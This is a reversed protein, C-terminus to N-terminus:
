DILGTTKLLRQIMAAAEARTMKAQPKLLQGNGGETIGESILLAVAEKAWNSVKNGDGYGSLVANMQETNMSAEPRILRYARAIMAMGQERTIYAEGHFAGDDYGLVIGSESAITVAAHYWTSSPVDRFANQEVDQRMLGLGKVIFVAFESRNIDRNPTFTNNGTGEIVLRAGIDNASAKAWHNLVDDYNKPNWIVSYTGSGRLDNIRAFYRNNIKTVVTPVHFVSGDPNVIVGTTIRSPDVGEPLAIYKAAYSNLKGAKITQGGHTFSLDLDVPHVLLEYGNKAAVERALQNLENSARKINVNVAIDSLSANGFQGAIRNLNLQGAPLPYIALLNEIELSSGSDKLEKLQQVTLGQVTLDGNNPVSISLKQGKGGALVGSLKGADVTVTTQTRDGTQTVTGTAFPVQQGNVTTVLDLPKSVQGTGTSPSTTVTGGSSSGGSGGNDSGSSYARYVTVKYEKSVNNEDTVLIYIDNSGPNLVGSFEGSTVAQPKGNAGVRIEIKANPNQATPKFQIQYVSNTVSMTYSATDPNFEPYLSGTSPVLSGLKNNAAPSDEHTIEITYENILNGATDEVKVQVLNRQGVNLPLKSWQEAPYETGNVYVKVQTGNPYEVTPNLGIGYVDNTVTATYHKYQNPNFEPSVKIDKTGDETLGVLEWDKLEGGIKVLNKEANDLATKVQDVQEQTANSDAFVERAKKLVDQMAQWSETTYDEAKLNGNELKGDMDSIKAELASKDVIEPVTTDVKLSVKVLESYKGDKAAGIEVDYVGDPLDQEPQVSWNGDVDAKTTLILGDKLKVMIESGPTATGKFQPKGTNVTGRPETLTVTPKTTDVKVDMKFPESTKGGYTATVEVNYTGDPLDQEPQVSWNGHEDAEATLTIGESVKVTVTSGPTATGKFQPKGTSVTGNPETLTVTPTAGIKNTVEKNFDLVSAGHTGKLNGEAHKYELKVTDTPKLEKSLTLKVKNGEVVVKSIDVPEQTDGVTILFGDKTADTAIEQDFSLVIENGGATIEELTVTEPEPALVGYTFFQGDALGEPVTAVYHSIGNIAKIEFEYSKAHDPTFDTESDSVFLKELKPINNEPIAVQVQGVQGTNQVKWVRQARYEKTDGIQQDFLLPKGNDGWILYQKDTLSNGNAENTEAFVGAAIAVQPVGANVSRSQRQDLGEVSDRGIGAINYKYTADVQWVPNGDTDVYNSGGKNLTIGYKVALYTEIKAADASTLQDYLIIEAVDAGLGLWDDSGGNTAGIVPTFTIDGFDSPRTIPVSEGDLKASHSSSSVDAIEFNVLQPRTRNVPRFYNYVGTTGNGTTFDDGYGGMIIVGNTQGANKDKGGVLAGASGSDPTKYVAFGSKFTIPKDGILKVSKSYHGIRPIDNNYFKISPNFNIGSANVTPIRAEQGAPVDMDFRIPNASKDSWGALKGDPADLGDDAKLWVVPAKTSAGGPNKPDAEAAKAVPAFAAPFGSVVVVFALLVMLQKKWFFKSSRTSM